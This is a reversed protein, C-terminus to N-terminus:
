GAQVYLAIGATLVVITLYLGTGVVSVITGQRVGFISLNSPLIRSAGDYINHFISAILLNFIVEEGVLAGSQLLTGAVGIAAILTPIGAVIVLVGATTLNFWRLFPDLGALVEAMLSTHILLAFVATVPMFVKAIDWFQRFATGAAALLDTEGPAANGDPQKDLAGFEQHGVSIRNWIIGIVTVIINMGINILFFTMGLKWGLSAVLAPSFYFLTFYISTPFSGMLYIAMLSTRTILNKRDYEALMANAAYRNLLCLIFFPGLSEPLKGLATMPRLAKSFFTFFRGTRLVVGCYCGLFLAPLATKWVNIIDAVAASADITGM